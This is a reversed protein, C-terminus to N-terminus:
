TAHQLKTRLKMLRGCFESATLVTERQNNKGVSHTLNANGTDLLAKKAKENRFLAEFADDLVRSYEESDRKMPQGQFWLTQRTKWNKKAGKAKAARGSLLFVAKQMEPSKFKLGQVFGEM